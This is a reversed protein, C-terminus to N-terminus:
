PRGGRPPSVGAAFPYGPQRAIAARLRPTGAVRGHFRGRRDTALTTLAVWRGSRRAEIAVFVGGPPVHGGRLLGRVLTRASQRATWLRV